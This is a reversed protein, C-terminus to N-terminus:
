DGARADAIQDKLEDMEAITKTRFDAFDSALAEVAVLVAELKADAGGSLNGSPVAIMQRASAIAEHVNAM